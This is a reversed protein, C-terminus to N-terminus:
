DCEKVHLAREIMDVTEFSDSEVYESIVLLDVPKGFAKAIPSITKGIYKKHKETKPAESWAADIKMAAEEILVAMADNENDKKDNDVRDGEFGGAPANLPERIEDGGDVPNLNEKARAENVTLFGGRQGNVGIEYSKYRTELDARLLADVNFEVFFVPDDLLLKKNIWQEWKVLWPRISYKVFELSQQEINSFTAKELDGIMHPPIRFIRAIETVSFKRTEIFQAENPKVGMPQWKMDEELVLTKNSNQSGQHQDRIQEKLRDAAIKGLEGPHSLVSGMHAGRGYFAAGFTEAAISVGITQACNEVVSLGMLGDFSMGPIHLMNEWVVTREPRGSVDLVKYRINGSKDEEVRVIDPSYPILEQVKGMKWIIESYANGRYVLHSQGQEQWTMSTQFKNPAGHLIPWLWHDRAEEKKDDGLRKYVKIPLSGVTESLLRVCAWVAAAQVASDPTVRIGSSNVAFDHTEWQEVYTPPLNSATIGAWGAKLRSKISM